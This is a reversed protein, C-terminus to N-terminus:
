RIQAVSGHGRGGEKGEEEKNGREEEEGSHDMIDLFGSQLVPGTPWESM